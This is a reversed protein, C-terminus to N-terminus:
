IREAPLLDLDGCHIVFDVNEKKARDLIANLRGISDSVWHDHIHIDAFVSFKVKQM